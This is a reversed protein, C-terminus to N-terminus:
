TWPCCLGWCPVTGDKCRLCQHWSLEPVMWALVAPVSGKAWHCRLCSSSSLTQRDTQTDRRLPPPPLTLLEKILFYSLLFRSGQEWQREERAQNHSGASEPGTEGEHPWSLKDSHIWTLFLSPILMKGKYKKLNVRPWTLKGLSYFHVRRQEEVGLELCWGPRWSLM